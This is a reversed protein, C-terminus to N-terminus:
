NRSLPDNGQACTIPLSEKTSCSAGRWFTRKQKILQSTEAEEREIRYIEFDQGGLLVVVDAAYHGTVALLHMVRHRMYAPVGHAWLPVIDM